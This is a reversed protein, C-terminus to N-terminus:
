LKNMHPLVGELGQCGFLRQFQLVIRNILVEPQAALASEAAACLSPARPM